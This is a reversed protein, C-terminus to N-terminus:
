AASITWSAVHEDGPRLVVLDTGSNFADPPCTMPEVAVGEFGLQASTCVQVWPLVAPDWTVRVGGVRVEGRALGTFAHDIVTGDVARPTTFDFPSGAVDALGAPLLSEDTTMYRTAPLELEEGLLWPHPGCGYPADADGDNRATVTTTLGGEGARHEVELALPFPYGPAGAVEYTLRVHDPATEAVKWDVVAVLGHLAHGRDPETVELQHSRGEFTYRAGGVRNPWPALVTGAYYPVPGEEPWTTVLDRGGHRLSRLAAGRPSIQATYGGGELQPVPFM